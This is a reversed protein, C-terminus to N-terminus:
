LIIATPMLFVFGLIVWFPSIIRTHSQDGLRTNWTPNFATKSAQFAFQALVVLVWPYYLKHNLRRLWGTKLRMKQTKSLKLTESPFDTETPRTIGPRCVSTLSEDTSLETERQSITYTYIHIYSHTHVSASSVAFASHKTEDMIEAFTHTIVAVLINLLWFNLVLLCVIFFACSAYYEADMLSYMM